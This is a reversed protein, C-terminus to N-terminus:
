PPQTATFWDESFGSNLEDAQDETRTYVKVTSSDLDIGRARQTAFFRVIQDRVDGPSLDARNKSEAYIEM